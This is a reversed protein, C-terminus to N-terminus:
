CCCRKAWISSGVAVAVRDANPDFNGNADLQYLYEAPSTGSIAGTSAKFVGKFQLASSLLGDAYNKTVADQLDTPDALNKIQFNSTGDGMNVIGEADGFENIHVDDVLVKVNDTGDQFIM